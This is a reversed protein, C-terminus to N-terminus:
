PKKPSIFQEVETKTLLRSSSCFSVMAVSPQHSFGIYEIMKNMERAKKIAPALDTDSSVLIIKDCKDEYAAVLIDTAMQVDVGKEHYRGDNKMLYGFSYRWGAKKLSAILQQQGTFLKETKKAGDQRIRGIYYCSEVLKDSDSLFESFDKFNFRLLSHLKLDKLKFYFNSGDVVIITRMM